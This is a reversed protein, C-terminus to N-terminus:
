LEHTATLDHADLTSLAFHAYGCFNNSGFELLCTRLAALRNLAKSRRSDSGRPAFRGRWLGTDIRRRRESPGNDGVSYVDACFCVSPPCEQGCADASYVKRYRVRRLPKTRNSRARARAFSYKGNALSVGKAVQSSQISSNPNQLM